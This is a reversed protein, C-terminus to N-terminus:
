CNQEVLTGEDVPRSNDTATEMNYKENVSQKRGKVGFSSVRNLVGNLTLEDVGFAYEQATLEIGLKSKSAAKLRDSLQGAESRNTEPLLLLFKNDMRVILDHSKTEMSLFQSLCSTVYEEEINQILQRLMKELPQQSPSAASLALFTLPREHRRARRIEELLKPEAEKIGPVSNSSYTMLLQDTSLAFEDIGQGIQRCLFMTLVVAAVEALTLYLSELQIEYGLISKVIVLALIFSASVLGFASNRAFKSILMCVGSLTALGYVFSAINITPFLREINFLIFLWCITSIIWFRHAQM